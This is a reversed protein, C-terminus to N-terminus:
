VSRGHSHFRLGCGEQYGPNQGFACFLRYNVCCPYKESHSWDKWADLFSLQYIAAEVDVHVGPYTNVDYSPPPSSMTPLLTFILCISLTCIVDPLSLLDIYNALLVVPPPQLTFIWVDSRTQLAEKSIDM